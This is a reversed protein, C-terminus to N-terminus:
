NVWRNTGVIVDIRDELTTLEKPYIVQGDKCGQYHYISKAAGNIKISTSVVSHDSWEEPCGDEKTEYKNKLSFYKAGDFESILQRMNESTLTAKAIGKTKVFDKGYFTVTGDASIAVTYDPCTGFCPSRELTILTDDPIAQQPALYTPGRGHCAVAMVM